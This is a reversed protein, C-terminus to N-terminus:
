HVVEMHKGDTGEGDEMAINWFAYGRPRKNVPATMYAVDAESDTRFAWQHHLFQLFARSGNPDLNGVESRSTVTQLPHLPLIM